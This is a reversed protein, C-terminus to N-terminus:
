FEFLLRQGEHIGIQYIKDPEVENTLRIIIFKRMGFAPDGGLVDNAVHLDIKLDDEKALLTRVVETVDNVVNLEIGSYGEDIEFPLTGYFADIIKIKQGKLTNEKKYWNEDINTVYPNYNLHFWEYNKPNEVSNNLWDEYAWRGWEGVPNTKKIHESTAWWFNGWYWGTNCTAGVTDNEKLKEVSEKWRDILFYELFERWSKINTVKEECYEKGEHTIYNNNVGKTHFYFINCDYELGLERVKKIGPYEAGNNVFYEIELKPYESVVSEFESQPVNNLNVTVYIKNAEDYLKSNKLRKLQELVIEKWNNVLFCHYVVFNMKSDSILKREKLIEEVMEKVIKKLELNNPIQVKDTNSTVVNLLELEEDVKISTSLKSKKRIVSTVSWDTRNKYIEISEINNTLYDMEEQTMYDSIIKGTTNFSNLMDLTITKSPDGWGFIVKEPMIAEFSTHLDEITYIGGPVVSKFLKSLTIQQDRMKHSGDDLIVDMNPYKESLSVLDSESSQDSNVLILRDLGSRLLNDSSKNLDIDVGIINSNVFYDRWLKVSEGDNIGIEMFNKVDTYIDKFLNNYILNFYNHEYHKDTSYYDVIELLEKGKPLPINFLNYYAKDLNRKPLNGFSFAHFIFNKNVEDVFHRGNLVKNDIVNIHKRCDLYNQLLYSFCTQDHWLANAYHGKMTNEGGDLKDCVDWWEKLFTKTWDSNKLLIVGANMLSPGYDETCIIDYNENIFNEIRYSNNVVVADADLFLIYDPNKTELIDLLFLPKYWTIARKGVGNRIKDDDTELHYEYNQEECYRENIKKTYEGYSLNQTWYQALIIKKM